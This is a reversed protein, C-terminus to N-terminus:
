GSGRSNSWVAAVPGKGRARPSGTAQHLSHLTRRPWSVRVWVRDHLLPGDMWRFFGLESVALIQPASQSGQTSPDMSMTRSLTLGKRDLRLVWPGGGGRCPTGPWGPARPQTQAASTLQRKRSAAGVGAKAQISAGVAAPEGKRGDPLGLSTLISVSLSRPPKVLRQVGASTGQLQAM